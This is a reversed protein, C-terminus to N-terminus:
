NGEYSYLYKFLHLYKSYLDIYNQNNIIPFKSFLYGPILRTISVILLLQKYLLFQLDGFHKKIYRLKNRYLEIFMEESVQRTSKGKYHIVIADPVFYLSWNLDAMRVFLDIEESYIFFQEDFGDLEEFLSRRIIFFAGMMVDVPQPVKSLIKSKPYQSVPYLRDLHFLRWFERLLTPKPWISIQISRDPNLIRPGVAGTSHHTSLFDVLISISSPFIITDPNIFLLFDGKARRAATNNAKAFGLNTQMQLVNINSFKKRVADVSGDTSANDVVLIEFQTQPVGIFNEFISDICNLLYDRTNWNIIIISLIM